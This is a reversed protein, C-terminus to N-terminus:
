LKKMALWIAYLLAFGGAAIALATGSTLDFGRLGRLQSQTGYMDLLTTDYDTTPVNLAPDMGPPWGPPLGGTDYWGYMPVGYGSSSIEDPPCAVPAGLQITYTGPAVGVTKM